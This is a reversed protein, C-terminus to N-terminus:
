FEKRKPSDNPNFPVPTTRREREQSKYSRRFPVAQEWHKAFDATFSAATKEDAIIVINEANRENASKTWNASGTVVTRSDAVLYKNHHLPNKTDTRVVVPTKSLNPASSYYGSTQTRDVIVRVTVGRTTAQALAHTIRDDSISYIAADITKESKDIVDAIATSIGGGPSFFARIEQGQALLSCSILLLFAPLTHKIQRNM